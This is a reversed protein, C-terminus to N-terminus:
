PGAEHPMAFFYEEKAHGMLAAIAGSQRIQQSFM